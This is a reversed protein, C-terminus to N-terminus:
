ELLSVEYVMWVSLLVQVFNYIILTTELKFPKRDKMYRPGWSLVAYLYCAILSFIPVPSKILFWDNTRPDQFAFIHFCVFLNITENLNSKVTQNVFHYFYILMGALETFLFNWYDTETANLEVAM